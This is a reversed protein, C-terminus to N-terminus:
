RGRATPSPRSSTARYTRKGIEYSRALFARLEDDIPRRASVEFHYLLEKGLPEIKEFRDTPLREKLWLHGRISDRGIRYIAAFRVEVMLAIRTKVPHLTVRGLKKAEAIFAKALRAGEKPKGAFFGAVTQRVCSHGGNKTVLKAGCRPCKWLPMARLIAGGRMAM